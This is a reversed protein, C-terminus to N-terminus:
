RSPKVSVKLWEAQICSDIDKAQHSINLEEKGKGVM